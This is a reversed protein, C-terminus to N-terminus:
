DWKIPRTSLKGVYTIKGVIKISNREQEENRLRRMENEEWDSYESMIDYIDDLTNIDSAESNNFREITNKIKELFEERKNM